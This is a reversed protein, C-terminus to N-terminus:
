RHLLIQLLRQRLLSLVQMLYSSKSLAQSLLPFGRPSIQPTKQYYWPMLSM